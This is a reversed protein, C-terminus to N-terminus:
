VQWKDIYIIISVFITGPTDAKDQVSAATVVYSQM